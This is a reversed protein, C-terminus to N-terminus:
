SLCLGLSDWKGDMRRVSVSIGKVTGYTNVHEMTEPVQSRALDIASMMIIIQEPTTDFLEGRFLGNTNLHNSNLQAKLKVEIDEPTHQVLTPLGAREPHLKGDKWEFVAAFELDPNIDAQHKRLRRSL